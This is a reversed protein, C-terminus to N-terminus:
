NKLASKKKFMFRGKNILVLFIYLAATVNILLPLINKAFRYNMAHIHILRHIYFSRQNM